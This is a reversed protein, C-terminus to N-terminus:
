LPNLKRWINSVLNVMSSQKDTVEMTEYCNKIMRLGEIAKTNHPEDAEIKQIQTDFVSQLIPHKELAHYLEFSKRHNSWEKVYPQVSTTFKAKRISYVVLALPVDTHRKFQYFQNLKIEEKQIYFFIKDGDFEFNEYVHIQNFSTSMNQHVVLSEKGKADEFEISLGPKTSIYVYLNHQQDYFRRRNNTAGYMLANLLGSDESLQKLVRYKFLESEM